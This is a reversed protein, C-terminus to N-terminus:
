GGPRNETAKLEREGSRSNLRGTLEGVVLRQRMAEVGEDSQDGREWDHQSVRPSARRTNCISCRPEDQIALCSLRANITRSVCSLEIKWFVSYIMPQGRELDLNPSGEIRSPCGHLRWRASKVFWALSGMQSM